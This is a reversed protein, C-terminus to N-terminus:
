LSPTLTEQKLVDIIHPLKATSMTRQIELIDINPINISLNLFYLSNSLIPALTQKWFINSM